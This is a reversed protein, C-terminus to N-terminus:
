SLSKSTFCLIQQFLFPPVYIFTLGTQLAVNNCIIAILFSIVYESNFFSYQTGIDDFTIEDNLKVIYSQNSIKGNVFIKGEEICKSLYSRSKDPLLSKLAKDLRTKALDENIIFKEM